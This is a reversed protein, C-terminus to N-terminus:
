GQIKGDGCSPGRNKCDPGCHGYSGDNGDPGEDCLEDSAIVGDGCTAACVSKPRSFNKLTVKFNSGNEDGQAGWAM